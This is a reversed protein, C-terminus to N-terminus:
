KQKDKQVKVKKARECGNAVIHGPAVKGILICICIDGCLVAEFCTTVAFAHQTLLIVEFMSKLDLTGYYTNTTKINYGMM